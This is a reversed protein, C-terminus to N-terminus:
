IAAYIVDKVVAVLPFEIREIHMAHNVAEEIPEEKNELGLGSAIRIYDQIINREKEKFLGRKILEDEIQKINAASGDRWLSKVLERFVTLRREQYFSKDKTDMM